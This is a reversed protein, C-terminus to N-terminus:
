INSIFISQEKIIVIKPHLGEADEGEAMLRRRAVVVVVYSEPRM